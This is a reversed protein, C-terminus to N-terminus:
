KIWLFKDHAKTIIKDQGFTEYAARQIPEHFWDDGLLYGGDRLLGSYLILDMRVSNYDHGADIYVFDAVVEHKALVLAANISDV